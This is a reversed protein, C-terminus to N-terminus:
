LLKRERRNHAWLPTMSKLLSVSKRYRGSVPLVKGLGNLFKEYQSELSDAQMAEITSQAKEVFHMKREDAWESAACLNKVLNEVDGPRYLLDPNIRGLFDRGGYYDPYLPVVGCALAELLAIPLGEYDSFFVMFKWRSITKWYDEGEQWGHFLVNERGALAERLWDEDPGAGLIEFTAGPLKQDLLDLFAPIRDVRKQKKVLRGAFGIITKERTQRDQEGIWPPAELIHPFYAFRSEDWRPLIQRARQMMEENVFIFGDAFRAYYRVFKEVRPYSSHFFGIRFEAPDLDALFDLGWCNHYLSVQVSLRDGVLSGYLRRLGGVTENPSGNLCYQRDSDKKDGKLFSVFRSDEGSERLHSRMVAEMGGGCHLRKAHHLYRISEKTQRIGGM